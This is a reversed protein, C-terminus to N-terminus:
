SKGGIACEFRDEIIDSGEKRLYRHSIGMIGTKALSLLENEESPNGRPTLRKEKKGPGFRERRTKGERFMVAYAAKSRGAIVM